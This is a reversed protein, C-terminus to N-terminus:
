WEWRAVCDLFLGTADRGPENAENTVQRAGVRLTGDAVDRWTARLRAHPFWQTEVVGTLEAGSNQTSPDDPDWFDGPRGEGHRQVDLGLGVRFDTSLDADVFGRYFEVDPGRAYGLPVGDQIFDAGYFVAYTDQYVKTAEVRADATRRGVRGAWSVGGQFALRHPQTSSETAVDDLLFEADIRVGSGVLWVVDAGAMVNNRRDVSASDPPATRDLIRQVITYPILNVAYLLEVGDSPYAASEQIGLHLSPLFAIELRHASFWQGSPQHLAATVAAFRAKRGFSRAFTLEPYAIAADSLLLTGSEGPGWRNRDLGFTFDAFGSRVTLTALNTNLYWDSGKVVSDGLNEEDLIREVAVDVAAHARPSLDVRFIGGVRTGEDVHGEDEEVHAFLAAASRARLTAGGAEVELLAPTPEPAGSDGLARLERALTRRVRASAPWAEIEPREQVSELYARAVDERV